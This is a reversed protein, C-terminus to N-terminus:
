SLKQYSFKYPEKRKNQHQTKKNINIHLINCANNTLIDTAKDGNTSERYKDCRVPKRQM